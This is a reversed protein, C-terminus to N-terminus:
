GADDAQDGDSQSQDDLDETASTDDAEATTDPRPDDDAVMAQVLEVTRLTVSLVAVAALGRCYTETTASCHTAAARLGKAGVYLGALNLFLESLEFLGATERSSLLVAIIGM